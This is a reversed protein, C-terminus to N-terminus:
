QTQAFDAVKLPTQHHTEWISLDCVSRNHKASNREFEIFFCKGAKEKVTYLSLLVLFRILLMFVHLFSLVVRFRAQLIPRINPINRINALRKSGRSYHNELM